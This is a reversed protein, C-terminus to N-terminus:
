PWIGELEQRLVKLARFLHTKVSGESCGMVQATEDVNLGQWIRLEFAQRQRTPLKRMVQELRRMAQEHQLRSPADPQSLDALNELFDDQQEETFRDRWFLVRNRVTQRRQWDRIKNELIRYFLPPWETAPRAAYSRVLQLMADQVVDLAEDRDRTTIEVMRLARKEISALFQELETRLANM